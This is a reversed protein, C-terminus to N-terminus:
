EPACGGEGMLEALAMDDGNAEDGAVVCLKGGIAGAREGVM